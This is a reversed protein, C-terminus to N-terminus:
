LQLEGRPHNSELPEFFEDVDDESVDDITKHSWKPSHDKDVLVARIGEVFDSHPQLRMFRQSLRYEDRLADGITVHKGAHRKLAEFTVKLSIPSMSQLTKLTREAWDRNDNHTELALYVDELRQQSFCKNICEEHPVVVSKEPNPPSNNGRLEELVEKIKTIKGADENLGELVSRLVPVKESPLYHTTLGVHMCDFANLRAGTLALYKGIAPKVKLRSLAFTGGVDPFLGIGTEPMAFLTKETAVRIKGHLSLGVGGGMTVGDWVSIQIIGKEGYATAIKHNLQYEEYFFDQPLSGGELLQTRVDAVDGGACFAKEGAGEMLICKVASEPLIWNSYIPSLSRVM